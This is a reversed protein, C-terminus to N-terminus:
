SMYLMKKEEEHFFDIELDSCSNKASLCLSKFQEREFAEKWQKPYVNRLVFIVFKAPTIIKNLPIRVQNNHGIHLHSIPHHIPKFLGYDYDYRIPTVTNKLASESKEQEYYDIFAGDDEDIFLENQALFEQYTVIKRPCEFYAYRIYGKELGEAGTDCSFQFFSDDELIYDFDMNKLAVNYIEEYDDKQSIRIFEESFKGIALTQARTKNYDSFLEIEKLIKKAVRLSDNIAAVNM